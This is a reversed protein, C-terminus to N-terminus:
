CVVTIPCLAENHKLYVLEYLLNNPWTEFCKFRNQIDVSGSYGGRSRGSIEWFVRKKTKKHRLLSSPMCKQVAEGRICENHQVTHACLSPFHARSDPWGNWFTVYITPRPGWVRNSWGVLVREIPWFYNSASCLFSFDNFEAYHLRM